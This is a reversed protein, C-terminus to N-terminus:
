SDEKVKKEIDTKISSLYIWGSDQSFIVLKAWISTSQWNENMFWGAMQYDTVREQFYYKSLVVM